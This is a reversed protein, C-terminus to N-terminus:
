SASELYANIIAEFSGSMNNLLDDAEEANLPMYTMNAAEVKEKCSESNIVEEFGAKLAQKVDEPADANVCLGRMAMIVLEVGAETFTPVDPYAELRDTSAVALVKLEGAAINSAAEAPSCVVADVHGGLVAAICSAAGDYPIHNFSAGTQLEVGIAALHWINGM